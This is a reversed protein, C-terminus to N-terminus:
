PMRKTKNAITPVLAEVLTVYRCVYKGAIECDLASREGRMSLMLSILNEAPKVRDAFM